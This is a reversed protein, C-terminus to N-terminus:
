TVSHKDLARKRFQLPTMHYNKKFMKIFNSTNQYGVKHAIREVSLDTSSLLNSAINMRIYNSFAGISMQYQKIFGAKLKQENLFVLKSLSKITPPAYYNEVLLDHAKQIAQLDSSTLTITRNKGLPISSYNVQSIFANPSRTSLENMLIALCELIKSELYLPNLLDQLALTELKQLLTIIQIPLYTYTYNEMFTDLPLTTGFYKQIIDTFYKSTITIEIGRYHTDARWYQSGKVNKQIIFFSSPTFSSQEKNEIDFLSTGKYVIGFRIIPESTDFHLSFNSPIIYNALSLEYYDPREYYILQGLQPNQKNTYLTYHNFPYTKFSLKSLVANKFDHRSTITM